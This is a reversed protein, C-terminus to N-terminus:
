FGGAPEIAGPAPDVPKSAEVSPLPQVLEAEITDRSSRVGNLFGQISDSLKLTVDQDVQVREGYDKPLLKAAIWKRADIAVRAANPDIDEQEVRCSLETIKDFNAHAQRVRARAYAERSVPNRDIREWLSGVSFGFEKAISTLTEGEGMRTMIEVLLHEPLDRVSVAVM